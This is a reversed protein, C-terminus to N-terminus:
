YRQCHEDRAEMMLGVARWYESRHYPTYDLGVDPSLVSTASGGFIQAHTQEDYTRPHLHRKGENKPFCTKIGNM